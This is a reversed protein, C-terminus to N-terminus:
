SNIKKRKYLGAGFLVILSISGLIISIVIEDGTQPNAISIIFNSSVYGGDEYEAKLTYMGEPLTKLYDKKLTIITSGSTKTYNNPDLEIENVKLKSLKELDGNFRVILDNGNFTQMNGEIVKYATIKKILTSQDQKAFVAYLTDNDTQIINLLLLNEEGSLVLNGYKDYLEDYYKENEIYSVSIFDKTHNLLFIDNHGFLDKNEGTKNYFKIGKNWSGNLSVYTEEKFTFVSDVYLDRKDVGSIGEAEDLNFDFLYEGDGTLVFYKWLDDKVKNSVIEYSRYLNENHVYYTTNENIEKDGTRNLHVENYYTTPDQSLLPREKILSGPTGSSSTNELTYYLKDDDFSIDTSKIFGEIVSNPRKYIKNNKLAYSFPEENAATLEILEKLTLEKYIGESNVLYDKDTNPDIYLVKNDVMYGRPYCDVLETPRNIIVVDSLLYNVNDFTKVTPAANIVNPLLFLCLILFLSKKMIKNM